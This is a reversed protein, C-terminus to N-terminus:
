WIMTTEQFPTGEIAIISIHNDQATISSNKYLNITRERQLWPCTQVCKAETALYDYTEKCGLTDMYRNMYTHKHMHM